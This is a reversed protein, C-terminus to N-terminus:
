QGMQKRLANIMTGLVTLGGQTYIELNDTRRMKTPFVSGHIDNTAIIAITDFGQSWAKLYLQEPERRITTATAIAILGVWLKFLNARGAAM